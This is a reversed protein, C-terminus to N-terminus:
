FNGATNKRLNSVDASVQHLDNKLILSSSARLGPTIASQVAVL